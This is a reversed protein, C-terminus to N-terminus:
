LNLTMGVLIGIVNWTFVSFRKFYMCFRLPGLIALLIQFLLFNSSECNKIEFCVVFSYYDFCHLIPVSVSTPTYVCIFCFLSSLFLNEHIHDFPRQYPHWSVIPFSCHRWCITNPFQFYVHLLRCFFSNSCKDQM